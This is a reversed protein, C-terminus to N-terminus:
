NDLCDVPKIEYKVNEEPPKNLEELRMKELKEELTDGTEGEMFAQWECFSYPPFIPAKKERGTEDDEIDGNNGELSMNINKLFYISVFIGVIGVLDFYFFWFLKEVLV